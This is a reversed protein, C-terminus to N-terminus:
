HPRSVCGVINDEHSLYALVRLGVTDGPLCTGYSSDNGDSNFYVSGYPDM